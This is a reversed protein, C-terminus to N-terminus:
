RKAVFYREGTAPDRGTHVDADFTERLREPTLTEDPSGSAVVTGRKLLVVRTAVRAAAPLEHMAALCALPAGATIDALLACLELQHRIDLFAAPEDLLLLRPRQALARAMAVRRLEGGSLTEVRRSALASLACRALAEDVAATDETRERMWGDQHPARGMAVVERVRFGWAVAESQPLFAVV